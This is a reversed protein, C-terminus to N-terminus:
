ERARERVCVFVCVVWGSDMLVLCGLRLTANNPNALNYRGHSVMVFSAVARTVVREWTVLSSLCLCLSIREHVCDQQNSSPQSGVSGRLSYPKTM